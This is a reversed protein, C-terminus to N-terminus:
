EGQTPQTHEPASSLLDQGEDQSLVLYREYQRLVDASLEDRTLYQIDYGARGQRKYM